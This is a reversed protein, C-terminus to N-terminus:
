SNTSWDPHITNAEEVGINLITNAVAVQLSKRAEEPTEYVFERIAATTQRFTITIPDGRALDEVELTSSPTLWTGSDPRTVYLHTYTNPFAEGRYSDAGEKESLDWPMTPGRVANLSKSLGFNNQFEKRYNGEASHPIGPFSEGVKGGAVVPGVRRLRRGAGRRDRERGKPGRSPIGILSAWIGVGSTRSDLTTM